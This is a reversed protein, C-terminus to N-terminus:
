DLIDDLSFPKICSWWLKCFDGAFGEGFLETISICHAAITYSINSAEFGSVAVLSFFLIFSFLCSNTGHM